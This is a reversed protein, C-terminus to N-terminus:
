KLVVRIQWKEWKDIERKEVMRVEFDQVYGFFGEMGRWPIHWHSFTSQMAKLVNGGLRLKGWKWELEQEYFFQYEAKEPTVSRADGTGRVVVKPEGSFSFKQIGDAGAGREGVWGERCTLIITNWSEETEALGETQTRILTDYIAREFIRGPISHLIVKGALYRRRLQAAQWEEDGGFPYGNKAIYEATWVKANQAERLAFRLFGKTQAGVAEVNIWRSLRIRNKQM